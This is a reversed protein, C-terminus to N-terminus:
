EKECYKGIDIKAASDKDIFISVDAHNRMATAPVIPTIEPTELTMQIADAKVAYPISSIIHECKLIQSVTVSDQLGFTGDLKGVSLGYEYLATVNEYFSSDDTLDSFQGTYTKTRQPQSEHEALAPVTLLLAFLLALFLRKM